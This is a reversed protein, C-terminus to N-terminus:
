GKAPPPASPPPIRPLLKFTMRMTSLQGPDVGAAGLFTPEQDPSAPPQLTGRAEVELGTLAANFAATPDAPAGEALKQLVSAFRTALDTPTMAVDGSLTAAGSPGASELEQIRAALRERERSWEDAATQMEARLRSIDPGAGAERLRHQEDIQRRLAENDAHLRGLSTAQEILQRQQGELQERRRALESELKDREIALSDLRAQLDALQARPRSREGGGRATM